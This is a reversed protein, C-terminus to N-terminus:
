KISLFLPSPASLTWNGKWNPKTKPCVAGATNMTASVALTAPNGGAVTFPTGSAGTFKCDIKLGCVVQYGPAGLANWLLTYIGNGTWPKNDAQFNASWQEPDTAGLNVEKATCPEGAGGNARTCGDLTFASILTTPSTMESGEAKLVATLGSKTCTVDGFENEFVSKQTGAFAGTIKQGTMYPAVNCPNVKNPCLVTASASVSAVLGILAIAAAAAIGLASRKM